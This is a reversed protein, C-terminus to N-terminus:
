HLIRNVCATCHPFCGSFAFLVIKGLLEPLCACTFLCAENVGIWRISVPVSTLNPAVCSFNWWCQRIWNGHLVANFVSSQIQNPKLINHKQATPWISFLSDVSFMLFTWGLIFISDDKLYMWTTGFRYSKRKETSCFLLAFNLQIHWFSKDVLNFPSAYKQAGYIVLVDGYFYSKHLIIWTKRAMHYWQTLFLCVCTFKLQLKTLIIGEFRILVQLYKFTYM